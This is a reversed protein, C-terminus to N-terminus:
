FRDPNHLFSQNYGKFEVGMMPDGNKDMVYVLVTCWNKVVEIRYPHSHSSIIQAYEAETYNNVPVTFESVVSDTGYEDNFSACLTEAARKGVSYSNRPNLLDVFGYEEERFPESGTKRGYVESSSIYLLRRTGQGSAHRLLAYLGNFNGLMTEVPQASIREPFANGAGHILYDADDPLDSDARAADFPVFSFYEKKSYAGFRRDMRERDRGAAMLRIKGPHTEDYRILLDVAASCILGGAGTILISKGELERLLPLRELAADLDAIWRPSDYISM